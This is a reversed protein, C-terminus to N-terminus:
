EGLFCFKLVYNLLHVSESGVGSINVYLLSSDGMIIDLRSRKLEKVMVRIKYCCMIAVLCVDECVRM